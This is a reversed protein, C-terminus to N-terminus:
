RVLLPGIVYVEDSTTATHGHGDSATVRVVYQGPAKLVVREVAASGSAAVAVTRRLAPEKDENRTCSCSGNAGHIGCDYTRRTLTLEVEAARRAGERDFGVVQVGFPMDVAQVFESPHMGLYLDSVHGTITQGATVAQGSADEVTAEFLYDQPQKGDSDGDRAAIAAKGADDLKRAM